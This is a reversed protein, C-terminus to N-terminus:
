RDEQPWELVPAKNTSFEALLVNELLFFFRNMRVYNPGMMLLVESKKPSVPVDGVTLSSVTINLWLATVHIFIFTPLPFFVEQKSHCLQGSQVSWRERCQFIKLTINIKYIYFIKINKLGM